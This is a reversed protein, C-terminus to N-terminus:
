GSMKSDMIKSSDAPLCQVSMDAASRAADSTFVPCTRQSPAATVVCAGATSPGMSTSVTSEGADIAPSRSKPVAANPGSMLSTVTLPCSTWAISAASVAPGVVVM